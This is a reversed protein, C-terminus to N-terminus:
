WCICSVMSQMSRGISLSVTSTIFPQPGFPAGPKGSHPWMGMGLTSSSRPTLSQDADGVRAHAPGAEARHHQVHRGFRGDASRKGDDLGAVADREADGVSRQVQSM